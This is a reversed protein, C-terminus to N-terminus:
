NGKGQNTMFDAFTWVLEGILFNKIEKDFVQHYQQMFDRQFEESFMVPPDQLTFNFSTIGLLVKFFVCNIM